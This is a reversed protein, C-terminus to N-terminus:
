KNQFNLVALLTLALHFIKSDAKHSGRWHTVNVDNDWNENSTSFLMVKALSFYQSSQNFASLGSRKFKLVGSEKTITQINVSLDSNSYPVLGLYHEVM